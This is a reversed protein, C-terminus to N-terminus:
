RAKHDDYDYKDYEIIDGYEEIEGDEDCEVYQLSKCNRSKNAYHSCEYEVEWEHAIDISDYLERADDLSDFVRDEDGYPLDDRNESWTIVAYKTTM